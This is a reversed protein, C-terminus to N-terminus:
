DWELLEEVPVDLHRGWIAATLADEEDQKPTTWVGFVFGPKTFPVRLVICSGKRYPEDIEHTWGIESVPLFNRHPYKIKQAYLPGISLM